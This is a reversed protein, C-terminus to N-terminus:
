AKIEKLHYLILNDVPDKLTEGMKVNREECAEKLIDHFYFAISGVFDTYINEYGKYRCVTTDLFDLFNKKVIQRVGPIDIIESTLRAFTALKVNPKEARMIGIKIENITNQENKEFHHVAEKPLDGQLMAKIMTKGINAGSGEDGFIYGHGGLNELIEDKVFRASNSGTGLICVIGKERLTCRVAALMDHEIQIHADPVLEKLLHHMLKRQSVEALGAGYFCIYDIDYGIHQIVDQFVLRMASETQINPNFGPSRLTKIVDNDQCLRWETKSSGSEAILIKQYM